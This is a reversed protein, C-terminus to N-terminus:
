FHNIVSICPQLHPMCVEGVTRKRFPCGGSGCGGERLWEHGCAWSHGDEV